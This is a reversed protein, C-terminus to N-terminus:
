RCREDKQGPLPLECGIKKGRCYQCAPRPGEKSERVEDIGVGDEQNTDRLEDDAEKREHSTAAHHTTGTSAAVDTVDTQWRPLLKRKKSGYAVAKDNGVKGVPAAMADTRPRRRTTSATAAASGRPESMVQSMRYREEDSLTTKTDNTDASDIQVNGERAIIPAQIEGICGNDEQRMRPSQHHSHHLDNLADKRQSRGSECSAEPVHEQLGTEDRTRHDLVSRKGRRGGRATWRRYLPAEPRDRKELLM